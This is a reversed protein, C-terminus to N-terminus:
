NKSKTKGSKKINFKKFTYVESSFEESDVIVKKCAYYLQLISSFLNQSEPKIEKMLNKLIPYVINECTLIALDSISKYNIDRLKISFIFTIFPCLILSFNNSDMEENMKSVINKIFLEFIQIIQGGPLKSFEEFLKKRFIESKLISNTSNTLKNTGFIYEEIFIDM